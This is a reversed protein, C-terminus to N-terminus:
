LSQRHVYCKSHYISVKLNEVMIVGICDTTYMIKQKVKYPFPTSVVNQNIPFIGLM